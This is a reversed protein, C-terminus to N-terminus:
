KTTIAESLPMLASDRASKPRRDLTIALLSGSLAAEFQQPYKLQNQNFVSTLKNRNM